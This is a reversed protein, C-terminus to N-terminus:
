KRRLIPYTKADDKLRDDLYNWAVLGDDSTPELLYFALRGLPQNTPVEWYKAGPKIDLGGGWHGELKRISHGEFPAQALTNATIGFGEIDGALQTERMQVGHAKLLDIAKTADLPVYYASPAAETTAPEFWMMDTMKEVRTVDKRRCMDADNSPNKEVEVDGMLIDVVGGQKFKATTALVAGAVKARDADAIAKKLRAVNRYAFDLSAELFYNTAKIRDEFTAYAYAESLLAFRNRLGVYNNHFRPM